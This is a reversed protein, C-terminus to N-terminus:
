PRTENVPVDRKCISDLWAGPNNRHLQADVEDLLLLLGLRVQDLDNFRSLVVLKESITM